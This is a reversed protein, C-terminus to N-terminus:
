HCSSSSARYVCSLCWNATHKDVWKSAILADELEAMVDRQAQERHLATRSFPPWAWCLRHHLLVHLQNHVSSPPRSCGATDLVRREDHENKDLEWMPSGPGRLSPHVTHASFPCFLSRSPSNKVARSLTMNILMKLPCSAAPIERAAIANEEIVMPQPLTKRFGGQAWLTCLPVESKVDDVSMASTHAKGCAGDAGEYTAQETFLVAQHPAACSSKYPPDM